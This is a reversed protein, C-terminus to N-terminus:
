NKDKNNKDEDDDSDINKPLTKNTATTPSPQTKVPNTPYYKNKLYNYAKYLGVFTLAGITTITAIKKYNTGQPVQSTTVAKTTIPKDLLKALNTSPDLLKDPSILDLPIEQLKGKNVLFVTPTASIDPVSPFHDISDRHKDLNLRYLEPQQINPNAKENELYKADLQGLLRACPMCAKKYIILPANPNQQIFRQVDQETKFVIENAAITHDNDLGTFYLPGYVAADSKGFMNSAFNIGVLSYKKMQDYAYSVYSAYDNEKFMQKTQNDKHQEIVKQSEAPLNKFFQYQQWRSLSHNTDKATELEEYSPSAPNQTPLPTNVTTNIIFSYWLLALTIKKIHM